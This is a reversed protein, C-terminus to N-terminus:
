VSFVTFILFEHYFQEATCERNIFAQFLFYVELPDEM